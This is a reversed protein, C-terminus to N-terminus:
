AVPTAAPTAAPPTMTPATITPALPTGETVAPMPEVTIREGTATYPGSTRALAERGVTVTYRITLHNGSADVDLQAHVTVLTAMVRAPGSAYGIVTMDATRDGTAQWAGHRTGQLNTGIVTGESNFTYLSPPLTPDDPFTILWSGILPHTPSPQDQALGRTGVLLAAVSIAVVMLTISLRRAM